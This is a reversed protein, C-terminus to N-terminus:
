TLEMEFGRDKARGQVFTKDFDYETEIGLRRILNHTSVRLRGDGIEVLKFEFPTEVLASAAVFHVGDLEAHTNVHTHAALVCRVARHSRLLRWVQGSFVEPPEHLPEDLGTQEAPISLVARHTVLVHAADPCASIADHIRDLQGPLFHPGQVDRWCYSTECWQNPAVHVCVDGHRVSFDPAGNQFFEPALELWRDRAGPELLDHNGLCLYLPVSLDFLERARRINQETGRNAMDGGHVVFDIENEGIWEDLLGLLEPLKQHYAKQQQYGDPEAGVHTDAIYIFKTM